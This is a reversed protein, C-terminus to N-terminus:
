VNMKKKRQPDGTAGRRVIKEGRQSSGEMSTKQKKEERPRQENTVLWDRQSEKKEEKEKSSM